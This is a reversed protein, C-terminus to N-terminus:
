NTQVIAPSQCAVRGLYTGGSWIECSPYLENTYQQCHETWIPNSGDHDYISCSYLGTGHDLSNDCTKRILNLLDRAYCVVGVGGSGCQIQLNETKTPTQVSYTCI